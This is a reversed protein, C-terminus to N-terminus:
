ATGFLPDLEARVNGTSAKDICAPSIQRDGTCEKFDLRYLPFMAPFSM